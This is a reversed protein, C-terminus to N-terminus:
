VFVPAQPARLFLLTDEHAVADHTAGPPTFLYDGQTLRHGGISIDGSLVVLEEGMPHLHAASVAGKDFRLFVSAGGTELKLLVAYCVGPADTPTWQRDEPKAAIVKM